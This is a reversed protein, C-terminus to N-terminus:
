FTMGLCCCHSHFTYCPFDLQAICWKGLSTLALWKLGSNTLWARSDSMSRISRLTVPAASMTRTTCWFCLLNGLLAVFCWRLHHSEPAWTNCHGHRKSWQTHDSCAKNQIACCLSDNSYCDNVLMCRACRHKACFWREGWCLSSQPLLDQAPGREFTV